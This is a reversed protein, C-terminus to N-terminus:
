GPFNDKVVVGEVEVKDRDMERASLYVWVRKYMIPLVSEPTQPRTSVTIKLDGPITRSAGFDTRRPRHGAHEAHSDWPKLTDRPRREILLIDGM